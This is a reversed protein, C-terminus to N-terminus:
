CIDHNHGREIDIIHYCNLKPDYQFDYIDNDINEREELTFSLVFPEYNIECYVTMTIFQGMVNHHFRIWGNNMGNMGHERANVMLTSIGIRQLKTLTM